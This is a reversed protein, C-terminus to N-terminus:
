WRRGGPAVKVAAVRLVAKVVAARPGGKGGGGPPSGKGKAAAGGAAAGVSRGFGLKFRFGSSSSQPNVTYTTSTDQQTSAADYTTGRLNPDMVLQSLSTEIKRGDRNERTVTVTAIYLGTM